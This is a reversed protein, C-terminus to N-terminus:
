CRGAAPALPGLSRFATWDSLVVGAAAARPLVGGGRVERGGRRGAGTPECGREVDSTHRLGIFRM